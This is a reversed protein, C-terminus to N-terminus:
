AEEVSTNAKRKKNDGSTIREQVKEVEREWDTRVCLWTGLLACYVLSFTLGMWLGHLGYELSFALYIGLPIGFAYYASLNLLAGLFQLIIDTTIATSFFHLLLNVQKGRARLIGGTVASTADFVQFLSVLPLISAVLAVVEPDDNFM